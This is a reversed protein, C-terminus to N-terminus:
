PELAAGVLWLVRAVGEPDAGGELYTTGLGNM